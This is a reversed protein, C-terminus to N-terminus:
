LLFCVNCDMMYCMRRRADEEDEENNPDLYGLNHADYRFRVKLIENESLIADIDYYDDGM